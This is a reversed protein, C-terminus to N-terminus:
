KKEHFSLVNKFENSSNNKQSNQQFEAGRRAKRETKM